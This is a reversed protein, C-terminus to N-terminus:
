RFNLKSNILFSTRTILSEGTYRRTLSCANYMKLIKDNKIRTRSQNEIKKMCMFIRAIEDISLGVLRTRLIGDAHGSVARNLLPGCTESKTVENRTSPILTDAFHSIGLGVHAIATLLRELLLGRKRAPRRAKIVNSRPSPSLSYRFSALFSSSEYIM